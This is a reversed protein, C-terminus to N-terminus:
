TYKKLAAKLVNAVAKRLDPPSLVEVEPSHRLIELLLERDDGYPIEMEYSGDPLTRCLQRPHWRESAVWRAREKTFRLVATKTAPGSFIGFAEAYHADLEKETITKARTRLPSASEIKDLSFIRLSDAMHCYADLYWSDRYRVLHQPSVERETTKGSQRGLYRIALRRGEALANSCTRLIEPNCPRAQAPIIKLGKVLREADLEEARMLSELRGRVAEFAGEMIKPSAERLQDLACLLLLLEGPNFWLGPLEEEMSEPGITWGGARRDYAIEAGSTARVTEIARYLTHRSCEIGELLKSTPVPKTAGRLRSVIEHVRRFRDM